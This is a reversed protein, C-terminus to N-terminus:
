RIANAASCALTRWSTTSMSSNPRDSHLDTRDVDRRSTLAAGAREREGAVLPEGLVLPRVDRERAQHRARRDEDGRAYVSGFVGPDLGGDTESSGDRRLGHAPRDEDN